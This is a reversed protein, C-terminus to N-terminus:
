LFSNLENFLDNFLDFVRLLQENLLIKPIWTEQIAHGYLFFFFALHHLLFHRTISRLAAAPWGASLNSTFVICYSLRFFLHLRNSILEYKKGFVIKRQNIKRGTHYLSKCIYHLDTGYMLYCKIVGLLRNIFFIPKNAIIPLM